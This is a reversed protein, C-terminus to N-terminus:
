YAGTYVPLSIRTRLRLAARSSLFLLISRFVAEDVVENITTIEAAQKVTPRHSSRVSSMLSVMLSGVLLWFM